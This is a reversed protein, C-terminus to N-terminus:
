SELVTEYHNKGVLGARKGGNKKGGKDHYRMSKSYKNIEINLEM